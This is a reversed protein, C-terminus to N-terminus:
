SKPAEAPPSAPKDPAEAYQKRYRPLRGLLKAVLIATTFAVVSALLTPLVISYPDNSKAALRLNIIGVPILSIAATNMAVLTAQEDSLTAKKPNLKDLEEMAKIGMPTAANDLGLANAAINLAIASLAPHDRPVRPFILRLVPHVARALINVLGSKEAIKMIGLWFVMVGVLSLAVEFATQAQKFLASDFDGLKGGFAAFLFAVILLLFWLVNM